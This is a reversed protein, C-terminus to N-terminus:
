FRFEASLRWSLPTGPQVWLESFSNTYYTEDFLNDIEARLSIADSLEYEAFARVLTYDPLEFDRGFYGLREGVHLLGGGFQLTRDGATMSRAIQISLTQEPINLLRSGAPIARGFNADNFDNSTKADVYSYAAWINIGAGLDGSVDLEFGQSEAEGIAALTFASPDDM